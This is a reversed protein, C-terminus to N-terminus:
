GASSDANRFESLRRLWLALEALPRAPDLLGDALAASLVAERDSAIVLVCVDPLLRRWGRYEGDLALLTQSQLVLLDFPDSVALRMLDRAADIRTIRAEKVLSRCAESVTAYPGTEIVIHLGRGDPLFNSTAM